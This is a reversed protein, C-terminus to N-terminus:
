EQSTQARILLAAAKGATGAAGLDGQVFAAVIAGEALLFLMDAIESALGASRCLGGMYSKLREKHAAAARRVTCAPDAFEGAANIFMCGHFDPGKFWQDLADFIRAVRGAPSAEGAEVVGTLWAMWAEDRRKLVAAVLGDKSKFNRYFSMGAVGAEAIIRDVGTSRIGERYFLRLAHDLIVSDM